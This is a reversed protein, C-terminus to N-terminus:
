IKLFIVTTGYKIRFRTTSCAIFSNLWSTLQEEGVKALGSLVIFLTITVYVGMEDWRWSVVHVHAEEEEEEETTAATTEAAAEAERRDRDLDVVRYFQEKDNLKSVLFQHDLESDKVQVASIEAAAAAALMAALLLRPVLM